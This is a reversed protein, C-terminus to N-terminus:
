GAWSFMVNPIIQLAPADHNQISAGQWSTGHDGCSFTEAQFFIDMQETTRPLSLILSLREIKTINDWHIKCCDGHSTSKRVDAGQLKATDEHIKQKTQQSPDIRTSDINRVKDRSHGLKPSRAIRSPESHSTPERTM